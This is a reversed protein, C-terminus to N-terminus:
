FAPDSGQASADSSIRRAALAIGATSQGPTEKAYARVRLVIATSWLAAFAFGEFIRPDPYLAPLALPHGASVEPPAGARLASDPPHGIISRVLRLAHLMGCRRCRPPENGGAEGETGELLNGKRESPSM